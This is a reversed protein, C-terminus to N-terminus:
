PHNQPVPDPVLLESVTEFQFGRKILAPIIIRVALLMESIDPHLQIDRGDHLCIIGGARSRKLVYDAIEPATWEWDHGIVTWM